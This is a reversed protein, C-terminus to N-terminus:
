SLRASMRTSKKGGSEDRGSPEGATLDSEIPLAVSSEREDADCDAVASLAAVTACARSRRALEEEAASDVATDSETEWGKESGERKISRTQRM